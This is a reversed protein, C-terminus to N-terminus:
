PHKRLIRWFKLSRLDSEGLAQRCVAEHAIQQLDPIPVVGVDEHVGLHAHKVGHMAIGKLTTLERFFPMAM